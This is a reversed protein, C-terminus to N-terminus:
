SALMCPYVALGHWLVLIQQLLQCVLKRRDNVLLHPLRSTDLTLHASYAYNLQRTDLIDRFTHVAFQKLLWVNTGLGGVVRVRARHRLCGDRTQRVRTATSLSVQSSSVRCHSQINAV